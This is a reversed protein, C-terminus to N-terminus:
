DTPSQANNSIIPFNNSNLWLSVLYFLGIAILISIADSISQSFQSSIFSFSWVAGGIM